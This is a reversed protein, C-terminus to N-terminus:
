PIETDDLRNMLADLISDNVDSQQITELLSGGISEADAVADQLDDHYAIHSAVMLSRGPDLAGAAYSLLWEDQLKNATSM